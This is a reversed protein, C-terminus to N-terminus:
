FRGRNAGEKIADNLEDESLSSLVDKKLYKTLIGIKPAKTESSKENETSIVTVQQGEQLGIKDLISKQLIIKGDLTYKGTIEM